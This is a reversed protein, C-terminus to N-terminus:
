HFRGTRLFINRDRRCNKFRAGIGAHVSIKEGAAIPMVKKTIALKAKIIKKMEAEITPLDEEAAQHNADFDHYFGNDIAPGVGPIADYLRELAQMLVHALSHRMAELSQPIIKKPM